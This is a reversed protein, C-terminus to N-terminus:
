SFNEAEDVRPLFTVYTQVDNLPVTICLFKRCSLLPSTACDVFETTYGCIADKGPACHKMILRELTNQDRRQVVYFLPKSVGGENFVM